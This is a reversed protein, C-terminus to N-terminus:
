RSRADLLGRFGEWLLGLAVAVIRERPVERHEYWWGALGDTAARACEAIMRANESRSGGIGGTAGAMESAIVDAIAETAQDRIRRHVTAVEPDAPPDRFLFRWVFPDEAVFEYFAEISLRLRERPPSEPVASVSREILARGHLELLEVYLNRKSPFHDYIVSAVVDARRAIEGMSAAAYGREAFVELAADLIRARRERASLRRRETTRTAATM